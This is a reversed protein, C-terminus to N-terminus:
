PLSAENVKRVFLPCPLLVTATGSEESNGFGRRKDGGAIIAVANRRQLRHSM